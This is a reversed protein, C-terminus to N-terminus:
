TYFTVKWTCNTNATFRERYKTYGELLVVYQFPKQYKSCWEYKKPSTIIYSKMRPKIRRITGEACPDTHTFAVSVNKFAKETKKLEIM